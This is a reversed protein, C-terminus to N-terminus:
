KCCNIGLLKLIKTFLNQTCSTGKGNKRNLAKHKGSITIFCANKKDKSLVTYWRLSCACESRGTVRAAERFAQKLNTPSKRVQAVLQNDEAATWRKREKM